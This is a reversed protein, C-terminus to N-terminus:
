RAPRRGYHLWGAVLALVTSVISLIVGTAGVSSWGDRSHQFANVLGVLGAAVVLGLFLLESGRQGRVVAILSGIGVFAGFILAAAILWSAFHSWQMEATSLYAIDAALGATFLALPFSFLIRRLPGPEFSRSVGDM